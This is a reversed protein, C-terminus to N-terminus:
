AIGRPRAEMGDLRAGHCEGCQRTYVAWGAAVQEVTFGGDAVPQAAEAVIGPALGQGAAALGVVVAALNPGWGHSEGFGVCSRKSM